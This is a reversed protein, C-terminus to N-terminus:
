RRNQARVPIPIMRGRHDDDDDDKDANLMISVAFQVAGFVTGHLLWLLLVALWGIDSHRVLSGIRAVDYALLMAVFVAALAFGVACHRLYLRMLDPENGHTM